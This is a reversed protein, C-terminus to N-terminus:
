MPMAPPGVTTALYSTVALIAAAVVIEVRIAGALSGSGAGALMRPVFVFRNGAAVLLLIGVLGLKILLTVGYPTSILEGPTHFLELVLILGAAFLLLLCYGAMDGFGKMTAALTEGNGSLCLFLLPLFAGTWVSVALIHLAISVKALPDLVAIHGALTFSALLLLLSFANAAGLAHYQTRTPPRSGLRNAFVACAVVPALFGALRLLTASGIEFGLLLRAMDPDFMGALGGGSTMGVQFLFSFLAGNFGILCCLGIYATFLVITHSREDRYFLLCITGGALSAIGLYELLKALQIALEWGTAPTLGM